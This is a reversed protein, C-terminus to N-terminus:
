LKTNQTSNRRLQWCPTEGGQSFLSVSCPVDMPGLDDYEQKNGKLPVTLYRQVTVRSQPSGRLKFIAWDAGYVAVLATAVIVLVRRVWVKM